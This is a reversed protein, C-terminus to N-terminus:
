FRRELAPAGATPSSTSPSPSSTSSPSPPSCARRRLRGRDGHRRGELASYRGQYGQLVARMTDAPLHDAFRVHLLTLGVTQNNKVEPVMVLTRGDRRGRVATVDRETAVRHKTGRSRPTARPARRPHGDGRRRPRGRALHRPRARRRGRHPLAHVRHSGRGRSRPRRAHAPRPLEARRPPAGAALVSRVLPAQLLTEDSRSIGVTVTKAQHKIADVPRTLEEIGKTLAGGDPGRRRHEAHRGQRARGRLLRAHASGDRLAAALRRARCHEGRALRRLQGARLGDLFRRAPADLRPALRDLLEEPAGAAAAEVAGRAERLPRASADIALAAEYGFLHGAVTALVFDLDPHSPRCRSRRSRPPTDVAGRQRDRDAHRSARPLDRGGQGRRRRDLGHARSACM